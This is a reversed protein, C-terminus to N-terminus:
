FGMVTMLVFALCLLLVIAVTLARGPQPRTDPEAHEPFERRLYDDYDFDDEDEEGEAWEADEWGSDASAGCARCFDADEPVDAGCNPCVFFDRDHNTTHKM